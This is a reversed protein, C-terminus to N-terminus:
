AAAGPEPRRPNEENVRRKAVGMRSLRACCLHIHGSQAMLTIHLERGGPIVGVFHVQMHSASPAGDILAEAPRGKTWGAETPMDTLTLLIRIPYARLSPVVTRVWHTRGDDAASKIAALTSCAINFLHSM